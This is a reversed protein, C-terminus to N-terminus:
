PHTVLYTISTDWDYCVHLEVLLPVNARFSSTGLHSSMGQSRILDFPSGEFGIVVVVREEERAMQFIFMKVPMYDFGIFYAFEVMM